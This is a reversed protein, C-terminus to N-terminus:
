SSRFHEGGDKGQLWELMLEPSDAAVSDEALVVEARQGQLSIRLQVETAYECVSRTAAQQGVGSVVPLIASGLTFAKTSVGDLLRRPRACERAGHPAGLVRWPDAM